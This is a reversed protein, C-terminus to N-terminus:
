ANLISGIDEFAADIEGPGRTPTGKFVLHELFHATGSGDPPDSSSGARIWLDIAVLPADRQDRTIVKLGNDLKFIRVGALPYEAQSFGVVGPGLLLILVWSLRWPHNPHPIM